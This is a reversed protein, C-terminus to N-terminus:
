HASARADADMSAAQLPEGRVLTQQAFGASETAVVIWDLPRATSVVASDLVFEGELQRSEGAALEVSEQVPGTLKGLAPDALRVTVQSLARPSRNALTVTIRGGSKQAGAFETLLRYQVAVVPAPAVVASVPEAALAAGLAGPLSLVLGLFFSRGLALVARLM